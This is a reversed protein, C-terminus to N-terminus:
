RSCTGTERPNGRPGFMRVLSRPPRGTLSGLGEFGITAVIHDRLMINGVDVEGALLREVGQSLLGDRFAPDRRARARVTENFDRTLTM